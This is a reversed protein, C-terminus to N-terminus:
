GRCEAGGGHRIGVLVLTCAGILTKLTVMTTRVEKDSGTHATMTLAREDAGDSRGVDPAVTRFADGLERVDDRM